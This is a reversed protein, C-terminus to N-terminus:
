ETPDIRPSTCAMSSGRESAHVMCTSREIGLSDPADIVYVRGDGNPLDVTHSLAPKPIPEPKPPDAAPRSCGALAILLLLLAPRM